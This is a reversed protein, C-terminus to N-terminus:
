KPENDDGDKNRFMKKFFNAETKARTERYIEDNRREYGALVGKSHGTALGFFFTVVALIYEFNTRFYDTM